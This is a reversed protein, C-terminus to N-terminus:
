NIRIEAGKQSEGLSDTISDPRLFSGSFSGMHLVSHIILPAKIEDVLPTVVYQKNKTAFFLAKFLLNWDITLGGEM